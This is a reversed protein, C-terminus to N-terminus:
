FDFTATLTLGQIYLEGAKPDTQTKQADNLYRIMNQKWYLLFEYGLQLDFHTWKGIYTGWGFGLALNLNPILSSREDHQNVAINGGINRDEQEIRTKFHQFFLSFNGNGFIRFGYGLLWRTELGFAPGLLWSDSHNHSTVWDNNNEEDSYEVRYNQDIWGGIFGFTPLFILAKGVYFPRGLAINILDMDLHWFGKQKTSAFPTELWNGYLNSTSSSHHQHTHFRVYGLDIKWHDYTPSFGLGLKFGPKYRYNLNLVHGTQSSDTPYTAGIDLGKEEPKWYIFSGSLSIGWLSTSEVRGYSNYLS